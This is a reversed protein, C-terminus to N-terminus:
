LLPPPPQADPGLTHGLSPLQRVPPGHPVLQPAVQSGHLLLGAQGVEGELHIAPGPLHVAQDQGAGAGEEAVQQLAGHGGTCRRGGGEM